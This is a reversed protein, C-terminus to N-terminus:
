PDIAYQRATEVAHYASLILVLYQDVRRELAKAQELNTQKRHAEKRDFFKAQARRMEQVLELFEKSVTINCGM